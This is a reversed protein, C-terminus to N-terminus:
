LVTPGLVHSQIKTPYLSSRLSIRKRRNGSFFSSPNGISRTDDMKKWSCSHIIRNSSNGIVYARARQWTAAVAAPVNLSGVAIVPYFRQWWGRTTMAPARSPKRDRPPPLPEFGTPTAGERPLARAAHSLGRRPPRPRRADLLDPGREGRDHGDLDDAATGAAGTPPGPQRPRPRPAGHARSTTRIPPDPLPPAGTAEHGRSRGTPAATALVACARRSRRARAQAVGHAHAGRPGTWM